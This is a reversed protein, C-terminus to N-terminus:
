EEEPTDESFRLKKDLAKKEGKPPTFRLHPNPNERLGPPLHVMDPDTPDHHEKIYDTVATKNAKWDLMDDWLQNDTVYNRFAIKDEIPYTTNDVQTISGAKTTSTKIKRDLLWRMLAIELAVKAAKYDKLEEEHKTEIAKIIGRLKRLQAVRYELDLEKEQPKTATDM